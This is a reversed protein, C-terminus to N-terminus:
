EGGSVTVERFCTDTVLSAPADLTTPTSPLSEEKLSEEKENEDLAEIALSDRRREEDESPEVAEDLGEELGEEEPITQEM